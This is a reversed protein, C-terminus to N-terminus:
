RDRVVGDIVARSVALPCLRALRIVAGEQEPLRRWAGLSDGEHYIGVILSSVHTVGTGDSGDGKDTPQM